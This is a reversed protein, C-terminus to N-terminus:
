ITTKCSHYFFFKLRKQINVNNCALVDYPAGKRLLM